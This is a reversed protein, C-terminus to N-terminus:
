EYYFELINSPYLNRIIVLENNVNQFVMRPTIIIGAFYLTFLYKQITKIKNNRTYEVIKTLNLLHDNCCFVLIYLSGIRVLNIAWSIHLLAINITLKIFSDIFTTRNKEFFNAYFSLWSFALTLMYFWWIDSTLIHHSLDIYCLKIDGFWPKDSLVILGYIFLCTLCFCRWSSQSFKDLTSPEDQLSRYYLWVRVQVVSWKLKRALDLIQRQNMIKDIYAKELITNKPVLIPKRIGLWEGIPLFYYKLGLLM